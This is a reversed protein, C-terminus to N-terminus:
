LLWLIFFFETYFPCSFHPGNFITYIYKFYCPSESREGAFNPLQQKSKHSIDGYTKHSFIHNLIYNIIFTSLIYNIIFINFLASPIYNSNCPSESREGSSEGWIWIIIIKYPYNNGYTKNFLILFKYFFHYSVVGYINPIHYPIYSISGNLDPPHYM